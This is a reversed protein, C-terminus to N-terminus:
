SSPPPSGGYTGGYTDSAGEAGEPAGMSGEPPSSSDGGGGRRRMLVVAAIAAVLVVVVLIGGILLPSIGSASSNTGKVPCSDNLNCPPVVVVSKNLVFTVPATLEGPRVFVKASTTNYGTATVTVTWYVDGLLTVNFAGGPAIRQDGGAGTGTTHSANVATLVAVGLATIPTITGILFGLNTLEVSITSTKGPTVTVNQYSTNYGSATAVVAQKGGLTSQNFTAGTFTSVPVGDVTVALGPYTGALTGRIWGGVLTITNSTTTSPSVTVLKSFNTVGTGSANLWYNGWTETVNYVGDTANIAVAHNNLLLTATVPSIRGAIWGVTKVLNISVVTTSGSAVDVMHNLLPQYLNSASANLFYTRGSAVSYNFTETTANFGHLSVVAGDITLRSQTTNPSFFGAIFAGPVYVYTVFLLDGGTYDFTDSFATTNVAGSFNSFSSVTTLNHPFWGPASISHTTGIAWAEASPLALTEVAGNTTVTLNVNTINTDFAVPEALTVMVSTNYSNTCSSSRCDMWTAYTGANTAALGNYFGITILGTALVGSASTLESSVSWTSGANTSYIAYLNLDGTSESMGYFSVWITGDPSVSIAPELYATSKTAATLIKASSWTSSGSTREEFGIAPYGQDSSGVSENDSWVLYSNGEYTSTTSGDIAFSPVTSVISTFPNDTVIFSDPASSGVWLMDVNPTSDTASPTSWTVGNNTSSVEDWNTVWAGTTSDRTANGWDSYIIDDVGPGIAVRPDFSINGSVNVPTSWSMGGNASVSAQVRGSIFFNCVGADFQLHFLDWTTVAVDTTTNIAVSPDLPVNDFYYGSAYGVAQCTSSMTLYDVYTQQEVVTTNVWSAGGDISRAVSIGAPAEIGPASTCNGGFAVCQPLFEDGLLVTGDNAAALTVSAFPPPGNTVPYYFGQLSGNTPSSPNLWSSNQPLWNPTWTQGGDTSRETEVFGHQYLQPSISSSSCFSGGSGSYLLYDSSLGALLTQNTGNIATLASTTSCPANLYTNGALAQPLPTAGLGDLSHSQETALRASIPENLTAMSIAPNARLEQVIAPLSNAPSTPAPSAGPVTLNAPAASSPMPLSGALAPLPLAMLVAVAVALFAAARITRFPRTTTRTSASAGDTMPTATM